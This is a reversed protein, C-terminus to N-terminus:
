KATTAALSATKENRDGPKEGHLFCRFVSIATALNVLKWGRGYWYMETSAVHTSAQRKCLMLPISMTRLADAIWLRTPVTLAGVDILLTVNGQSLVRDNQQRPGCSRPCSCKEVDAHGRDGIEFVTPGASGSAM